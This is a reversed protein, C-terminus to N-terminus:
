RRAPDEARVVERPEPLRTLPPLAAPVTTGLDVLDVTEDGTRSPAASVASQQSGATEALAIGGLVVVAGVVQVTELHEGLAGWAILGALVPELTGVLGTRTAGIHQLGFLVLVFPVVTGLLVVSAVLLWLPVSTGGITVADDLRDYPFSSWPVLAAWFVASGLFSLAALALPPRRALCREGLLYYSGLAVADGVAAAMGVGDFALGTWVQAVLALGALVLGTACWVRRRMPTKHAFRMWLAVLLPATFEVLLAVGVPVRTLAVFYLWQTMAVGIVGVAATIAVDSRTLRLSQPDTALAISCLVLAAGASRIEVLRLPPIGADLVLKSVTGNVAFLAASVLVMAVGVVPYGRAGAQSERQVVTVSPTVPRCQAHSGRCHASSRSRNEIPRHRVLADAHHSQRIQTERVRPPPGRELGQDLGLVRGLAGCEEGGEALQGVLVREDLQAEVLGLALGREAQVALHLLFDDGCQELLPVADAGPERLRRGQADLADHAGPGGPVQDPLVAVRIEGTDPQAHLRRGDPVADPERGADLAAVQRRGEYGRRLFTDAVTQTLPQWPHSTVSQVIM